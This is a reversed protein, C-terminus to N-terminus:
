RSAPVTAHGGEGADGAAQAPDPSPAADAPEPAAKSRNAGFPRGYYWYAQAHVESKPFGFEDRLRVRLHKLSGSEPATWAYWDSWDRAEIAAALSAEGRRPVWHVSARPHAVLPILRDAEHHEELYLEVPIEAPLEDLIANIAPISASDGILLYGSPLEDPLDFRTSGLSTVQVSTGPEARQAWASAPGAPEHLVFDVAFDGTEVDAESLTYGRQHEFDKGEIDPFWFRVYATPAVTANPDQLLTSSHLRVRLFRPALLETGIVTAEHDRAGYGRMMAGTFGRKAM